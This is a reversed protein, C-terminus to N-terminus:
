VPVYRQTTPTPTITSRLPSLATPRWLIWDSCRQRYRDNRILWQWRQHCHYIAWHTYHRRHHAGCVTTTQCRRECCNSLVAATGSARPKTRNPPATDREGARHPAAIDTNALLIEAGADIDKVTKVTVRTGVRTLKANPLTNPTSAPATNLSWLLLEGNENSADDRQVYWTPEDDFCATACALLDRHCSTPRQRWASVCSSCMLRGGFRGITTGQTIPSVAYLGARGPETRIDCYVNGTVSTRQCREPDNCPADPPVDSIPPDADDDDKRKTPPSMVAATSPVEVDASPDTTLTRPRKKTISIRRARESVRSPLTTSALAVTFQSHLPAAKPAALRQFRKDNCVAQWTKLKGATLNKLLDFHNGHHLLHHGNVYNQPSSSGSNMSLVKAGGVRIGEHEKWINVSVNHMLTFVACCGLDGYSSGSTLYHIYDQFTDLQSNRTLIRTYEPTYIDDVTQLLSANATLYDVISKRVLIHTDDRAAEANAGNLFTSLARFLCHGDGIVKEFCEPNDALVLYLAENNESDDPVAAVVATDNRSAAAAIDDAPIAAGPASVDTTVATATASTRRRKSGCLQIVDLYNSPRTDSSVQSPAATGEAVDAVNEAPPGGDNEATSNDFAAVTTNNAPIM